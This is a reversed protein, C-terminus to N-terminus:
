HVNYMQLKDGHTVAVLKGSPSLAAWTNARGDIRLVIRRTSVDFVAVRTYGFINDLAGDTDVYAGRCTALFRRPEAISVEGQCYSNSPAWRERSVQKTTGDPLVEMLLGEFDFFWTEKEGVAVAGHALHVEKPLALEQYPGEAFSDPKSIEMATAPRGAYFTCAEISKGISCIAFDTQGPSPPLFVHCRIQENPCKLTQVNRLSSDLIEVDHKRRILVTGIHGHTVVFGPDTRIRVVHRDTGVIFVEQEGEDTQTRAICIRVVAVHVDDVWFVRRGGPISGPSCVGTASSQGILDVTVFPKASEAGLSRFSCTTLVLLAIKIIVTLKGSGNLVDINVPREITLSSTNTFDLM